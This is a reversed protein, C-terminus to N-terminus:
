YATAIAQVFFIPFDDDTYGDVAIDLLQQMSEISKFKENKRKLTKNLYQIAPIFGHSISSFVLGLGTEADYSQYSQGDIKWRGIYYEALSFKLNASEVIKDVYMRDKAENDKVYEGTTKLRGIIGYLGLAVKDKQKMLPELVTLAADIKKDSALFYAYLCTFVALGKEHGKKAIDCATQYAGNEFAQVCKELEKKMDCNSQVKSEVQEIAQLFDKATAYRKNPDGDCAKLLVAKVDSQLANFKQQIEEDNKSNANLYLMTMALSYIDSNFSHLPQNAIIEPAFISGIRTVAGDSNLLKRSIGFDGLIFNKNDPNYFINDSKVDRHLINHTHCADLAKCIDKGLKLIEGIEKSHTKFYELLPILKPMFLLFLHTEDDLVIESADLLSMIYPCRKCMMMSKVEQKTYRIIDEQPLNVSNNVTDVLKLILLEGREDEVEYVSAFAGRKTVQRVIKYNKGSRQNHIQLAKKTISNIQDM